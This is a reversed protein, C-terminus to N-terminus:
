SGMNSIDSAQQKTNPIIFSQGNPITSTVGRTTVVVSNGSVSTSISGNTYTCIMELDTPDTTVTVRCNLTGMTSYTNTQATVTTSTGEITTTTGPIQSTIVATSNNTVTTTQDATITATTTGQTLSVGTNNVVANGGNTSQSTTATGGASQSIQTFGSDAQTATATTPLNDSGVTTATIKTTGNNSTQSVAVSATLTGKPTTVTTSSPVSDNVSLNFTQEVENTGDGAVLTIFYSGVANVTGSLKLTQYYKKIAHNETDAIYVNGSKDVAIGQPFNLGSGVLTSVSTGDFKKIAKNVTDAIYVNGNNDVAVGRPYGLGSGVLTSVSTGDFKKITNKDKDAIYVNGSNDVAVGRPYGVDSGALISVIGSTGDFKKIVEDDEDAIYVNGSKDVAVGTPFKLGSGILTSVSTGDFKKIAKNGTDAIYVNGSKDVAVGLPSNLGSGVLTSVSTGDFKKIADNNSDAIYVNGSDDVAVGRPYSLGSVITEINNASQLTIGDPLTTGEKVKWTITKGTRSKALPFYLYPSDVAMSLVPTSTIEIEVTKVTITFDHITSLAGDSVSLSVTNSGVDSSTPKGSLKTIGNTTTLKLWSPLTSSWTLTDGNSDIAGLIYEYEVATNATTIATSTVIPAVNTVIAPVTLTFTQEDSGGKDDSVVLTISYVGAKTPTGSLQPTPTFKKIAKNDTDAIYVNGNKDVAVGYPHLLGSDVLTSMSNTLIDFKKIANNQSDAIYVNGSKDVAVGFSRQLDSGVLTSASKTLIDFKKIANNRTDAIYVNGSKDVAVGMPLQLGRDVLTSITNTLIDYKKIANNHSDAIYVNGSNDVAAGYPTNLGSEVLTSITNTLIDFKKVTNAAADVIYIHGSNDVAIGFPTITSDSVLTSSQGNSLTVGAPLVTGEKLSWTLADGDSDIASLMYQYLTDITGKTVATSTIVPADNAGIISINFYKSVPDTTSNSAICINYSSKSEYDFVGNAVLQVGDMHISFNADDSGGCFTYRNTLGDTTSFTGIIAGQLNNEALTSKSLNIDTKSFKVSKSDTASTVKTGINGAMDSYDISFSLDGEIDADTLTYIAMYNGQAMTATVAHGAITVTPTQITESATLSVYVKEGTKLKYITTSNQLGFITVPNLTPATKDFSVSSSNTTASAATGANEASDKYSINFAVTGETDASTLKYSASYNGSLTATRGAITVTPTQITESATFSVTVTDGVKAKSTNNNDSSIAVSTLTPSTNDVPAASAAPPSYSYDYGYVGMGYLLVFPAVVRKFFFAIKFM